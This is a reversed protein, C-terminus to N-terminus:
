EVPGARDLCGGVLEWKEDALAAVDERDHSVLVLPVRHADCRARVGAAVSARLTPDLAAFPEDLLLLRPRSLLARGLAVRQREGGSLRRPRRTLLSTLDLWKATEAVERETARGAYALNEAVTRHPFLLADQPVWGVGREWPRRDVGAAVDLWREGEVRVIGRAPRELGALVRLLTTKGAGSPGVIAIRSARTSLHVDLALAGRSLAVDLELTFADDDAM